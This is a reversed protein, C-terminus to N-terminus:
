PSQPVTEVMAPRAALREYWAALQARGQRWELHKMRFDLTGLACGITIHGITLPGGLLHAEAELAHLGREIAATQHAIWTRSQREPRRRTEINVLVSAELIGDGLVTRRLATWRAKGAAPFLKPGDHLTDLLECIATSGYIVQGDDDVFTPIKGLPNVARLAETSEDPKQVSTRIRRIQGATGTELAAVWVKRAFPSNPSWYLKM